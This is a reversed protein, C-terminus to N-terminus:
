FEHITLALLPNRQCRPKKLMLVLFHEADKSLWASHAAGWSSSMSSKKKQSLTGEGDPSQSLHCRAVDPEASLLQIRQGSM